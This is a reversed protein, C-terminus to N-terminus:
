RRGPSSPARGPSEAEAAMRKLSDPPVIAAPLREGEGSLSLRANSYEYRKAFYARTSPDLQYVVKGRIFPKRALPNTTWEEQWILYIYLRAGSNVEEIYARACGAVEGRCFRMGNCPETAHQLFLNAFKAYVAKSRGPDNKHAGEGRRSLTQRELARADTKMPKIWWFDVTSVAGDMQSYMVAQMGCFSNPCAGAVVFLPTGTAHSETDEVKEITNGTIGELM